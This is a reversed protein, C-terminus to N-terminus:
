YNCFFCCSRRREPLLLMLFFGCPISGTYRFLTENTITLEGGTGWFRSYVYFLGPVKRQRMLKCARSFRYHFSQVYKYGSRYPTNIWIMALSDMTRGGRLKELIRLNPYLAIFAKQRRYIEGSSMCLYSNKSLVLMVPNRNILLFFLFPRTMGREKWYSCRCLTM